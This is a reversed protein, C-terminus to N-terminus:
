GEDGETQEVSPLAQAHSFYKRALSVGYATLSVWVIAYAAIVFGWGGELIGSM